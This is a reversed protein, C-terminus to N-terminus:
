KGHGKGLIQVVYKDFEFHPSNERDHCGVCVKPENGKGINKPTPDEAHM